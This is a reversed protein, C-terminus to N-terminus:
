SNPRTVQQVANVILDFQLEQNAVNETGYNVANIDMAITVTFEQIGGIPLVGIPNVATGFTIEGTATNIYAEDGLNINAVSCEPHDAVTVTLLLYDALKPLEESDVGTVVITFWYNFATDSVQASNILQMNASVSSGPVFVQADTLNFMNENMPASFDKYRPNETTDAPTVDAIFGDADLMMHTYDTRVLTLQMDGSRLHNTIKAGDTFLAYTGGVLLALSVVLAGIATLLKTRKLKM